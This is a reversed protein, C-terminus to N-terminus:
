GIGIRLSTPLLFSELIKFLISFFFLLFLRVFVKPEAIALLHGASM